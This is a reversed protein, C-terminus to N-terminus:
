YGGSIGRPQNNQFGGQPGDLMMQRNLRTSERDPIRLNSTINSTAPQAINKLNDNDDNDNQKSKEALAQQKNKPKKHHKSSHHDPKHQSKHISLDNGKGGRVQSNQASIEKLKSNTQSDSEKNKKDLRNNRQSPMNNSITNGEINTNNMDAGPFASFAPVAFLIVLTPMLLYKKM